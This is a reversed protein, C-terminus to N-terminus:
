LKEQNFHYKSMKVSLKGANVTFVHQDMDRVFYVGYMMMVNFLHGDVLVNFDDLMHGDVLFHMHGNDFLHRNGNMHGFVLSPAARAPPLHAIM